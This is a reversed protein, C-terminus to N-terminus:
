YYHGRHSIIPSLCLLSTIISHSPYASLPFRLSLFSLLLLTTHHYFCVFRCIDSVWLLPIGSIFPSLCAQAGLPSSLPFSLSLPFHASFSGIISIADPFFLVSFCLPFSLSPIPLHFLFLILPLPLLCPRLFIYVTFSFSLPFLIHLALWLSHLCFQLHLLMSPFIVYHLPPFASTFQALASFPSFARYKPKSPLSFHVSLPVSLASSFSTSSDWTQAISIWWLIIFPLIQFCQPDSPEKKESAEGTGTLNKPDSPLIWPLVKEKKCLCLKNHPSIKQGQAAARAVTGVYYAPKSYVNKWYCADRPEASGGSGQKKGAPHQVLVIDRETPLISWHQCRASDSIKRYTCAAATARPVGWYGIIHSDANEPESNKVGM